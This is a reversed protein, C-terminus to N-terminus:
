EHTLSGQSVKINNDDDIVVSIQSPKNNETSLNNLTTKNEAGPLAGSNDILVATTQYTETFLHNVISVQGGWVSTGSAKTNPLGSIVGQLRAIEAQFHMDKYKLFKYAYLCFNETLSRGNFEWFDDADCYTTTLTTLLDESLVTKLIPLTMLMYNHFNKARAGQEIILRDKNINALLPLNKSEHNNEFYNHAFSPSYLLRLYDKLSSILRSKSDDLSILSNKLVTPNESNALILLFVM